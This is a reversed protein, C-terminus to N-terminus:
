GAAATGGDPEEVIIGEYTRLQPPGSLVGALSSQNHGAAFAESKTWALFSERSRWVSHSIYEGEADGRLLAFQVFGPVERLYSRRERWAREFEDEHGKTVKFINMAVFVNSAGKLGAAVEAL